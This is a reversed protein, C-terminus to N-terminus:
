IDKIFIGEKLRRESNLLKKRERFSDKLYHNDNNAQGNDIDKHLFKVNSDSNNVISLNNLRERNICFHSASSKSEDFKKDSGKSFDNNGLERFNCNKTVIKSPDKEVLFKESCTKNSIFKKDNSTLKSNINPIDKIFFCKLSSDNKSNNENNIKKRNINIKLDFDKFNNKDRTKEPSMARYYYLHQKKQNSCQEPSLYKTQKKNLPMYYCKEEYKINPFLESRSQSIHNENQNISNKRIIKDNNFPTTKSQPSAHYETAQSFVVKKNLYKIVKGNNTPHYYEEDKHLIEESSNIKRDSIELSFKREM